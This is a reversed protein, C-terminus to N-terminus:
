SQVGGASLAGDCPQGTQSLLSSEYWHANDVESAPEADRWVPALGAKDAIAELDEISGRVGTLRQNVWAPSVNLEQAIDVQTLGREKIAAALSEAIKTSM